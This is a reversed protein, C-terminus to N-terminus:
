GILRIKSQLTKQGIVRRYNAKSKFTAVRIKTKKTGELIEFNVGQKLFPTGIELKGDELKLLVKNCEFKKLDGLFDVLVVQKPSIKYQKGGIDAIIYNLM